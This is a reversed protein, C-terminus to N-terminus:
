WSSSSLFPRPGRTRQGAMMPSGPAESHPLGRASLKRKGERFGCADSRRNLLRLRKCSISSPVGLFQAVM